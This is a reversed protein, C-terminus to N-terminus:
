QEPEPQASWTGQEAPAPGPGYASNPPYTATDDLVSPEAGAKPIPAGGSGLELRQFRHFTGRAAPSLLDDGTTPKGTGGQYLDALSDLQGKLLETVTRIYGQIQEPSSNENVNQLDEKIKSWAGGTGRFARELERSVAARAAIFDTAAEHVTQTKWWNRMANVTPFQGNHMADAMDWLTSMHALATNASRIQNSQTGVHYAVKTRYNTVWRSADWSPDLSTVLKQVNQYFPARLQWGSPGPMDGNDVSRAVSALGPDATAIKQLASNIDGPKTDRIVKDIFSQMQSARRAVAENRPIALPDGSPGGRYVDHGTELYTRANQDLREPSLGTTKLLDPASQYYPPLGGVDVQPLATAPAAAAGPPGTYGAPVVDARPRIPNGQADVVQDEGGSPPPTAQAGREPAAGSPTPTSPPPAPATEPAPAEAPAPSPATPAESSAPAEPTAPAAPSPAAPAEPSAPEAPPEAAPKGSEGGDSGYPATEIGIGRELDHQKKESDKLKRELEAVEYQLKQKKLPDTEAKEQQELYWKQQEVAFKQEALVLRQEALNTKSVDQYAKDRAQFLASPDGGQALVAQLQSDGYKLAIAQLAQPDGMAGAAELQEEQMRAKLEKLHDQYKTKLEKADAEQRKNRASQYGAFASLMPLAAGKSFLALGIMLFPAIGQIIGPIERQHPISGPGDGFLGEDKGWMSPPRDPIMSPYGGRPTYSAPRYNQPPPARPGAKVLGSDLAAATAVLTTGAGYGRYGALSFGTKEAGEPGRNYASVAKSWSGFRDYMQRLYRAAGQLNQEPDYPNVGLGRATDPELQGLGIAGANSRAGPSFNSEAHILANFLAPPLGYENAYRQIQPQFPTQAPQGRPTSMWWPNGPSTIPPTPTGERPVPQERRPFIYGSSPDLTFAGPTPTPPPRTDGPATYPDTPPQVTRFAAPTVQPVQSLPRGVYPMIRDINSGQLYNDAGPVSGPLFPSPTTPEYDDPTPM